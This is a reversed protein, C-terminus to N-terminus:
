RASVRARTRAFHAPDHKREVRAQLQLVQFPDNGLLRRAARLARLAAVRPRAGTLDIETPSLQLGPDGCFAVAEGHHAVFDRLGASLSAYFVGVTEYDMGM